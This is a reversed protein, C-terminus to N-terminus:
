LSAGVGTGDAREHCAEDNARPKLGVARRRMTVNLIPRHGDLDISVVLPESLPSGDAQRPYIRRRTPFKIGEVQVYDYVYHAGPTDGAIEINYDM